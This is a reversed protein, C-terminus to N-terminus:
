RSRRLDTRVISFVRGRIVTGRMWCSTKDWGGGSMSTVTDRNLCSTEDWGGGSMSTVSWSSTEDWGRGSMSTM